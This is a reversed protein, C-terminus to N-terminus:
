IFMKSCEIIENKYSLELDFIDKVLVKRLEYYNSECNRILEEGGLKPIGSVRKCFFLHEFADEYYGLYKIINVDISLEENLERILAEEETENLEIGGGPLSYYEYM